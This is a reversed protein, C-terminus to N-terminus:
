IKWNPSYLSKYYLRITKQIEESQTTIDGEENRIKNIQICERHGRTLSVLPKDIKNIKEFFWCSSINIRQITSKTEVQNIDAM